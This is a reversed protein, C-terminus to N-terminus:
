FEKLLADIEEVLKTQSLSKNPKSTTSKSNDGHQLPASSSSSTLIRDRVLRLSPGTKRVQRRLLAVDLGNKQKQRVDQIISLALSDAMKETSASRTKQQMGLSTSDSTSTSTASSSAAVLERLREVKGAWAMTASTSATSSSKTPPLSFSQERTENEVDEHDVVKPEAYYNFAQEGPKRVTAFPLATSGIGSSSGGLRGPGSKAMTLTRGATPAGVKNSATGVPAKSQLEGPAKNKLERQVLSTEVCRNIDAITTSGPTPVSTPREQTQDGAKTKSTISAGGTTSGTNTNGFGAATLVSGHLGPTLLNDKSSAAHFHMPSYQLRRQEVTKGRPMDAFMKEHADALINKTSSSQQVISSTSNRTTSTTTTSSASSLTNAKNPAVVPPTATKKLQPPKNQTASTSSSPAGRVNGLGLNLEPKTASSTGSNRARTTEVKSKVAAIYSSKTPGTSTSSITTIANGATTALVAGGTTSSNSGIIGSGGGGGVSTTGVVTLQSGSCTQAGGGAGGSTTNASTSMQVDRYAVYTTDLGLLRGDQPDPLSNVTLLKLKGCSKELGQNVANNLGRWQMAKNRTTEYKTVLQAVDGMLGSVLIKTTATSFSLDPASNVEILWCKGFADVMFDFGYIEFSNERKPARRQVSHLSIWMYQRIQRTIDEFKIPHNGLAAAVGDHSHFEELYREFQASSWMTSDIQESKKTSPKSPSATSTTNSMSVVRKPTPSVPPTRLGRSTQESGGMQQQQQEGGSSAQEDFDPCLKTVANNTLHIYPDCTSCDYERAGFRLYFDEYYWARLNRPSEWATVVVWQRIDFKRKGILLPKEIYKQCIVNHVSQSERANTTPSRFDPLNNSNSSASTSNRRTPSPSSLTCTTSTEAAGDEENKVSSSSSTAVGATNKTTNAASANDGAASNSYNNLVDEIACDAVNAAKNADNFGYLHQLIAAPSAMVDASPPKRYALTTTSSSSFSTGRSLGGPGGCMSAAQLAASVAAAGSKAPWVEIWSSFDLAPQQKGQQLVTNSTLYNNTSSTTPNKFDLALPGKRSFIYPVSSASSDRSSSTNGNSAYYIANYAAQDMIYNSSQNNNTSSNAGGGGSGFQSGGSGLSNRGTTIEGSGGRDRLSAVSSGRLTGGAMHLLSSGRAAGAIGMRVIEDLTNVVQIGRGRSANTPKVIWLNHGGGVGDGNQWRSSAFFQFLLDSSTTTNHSTSSSQNNYSNYNIQQHEGGFATMFSANVSNMSSVSPASSRPGTADSEPVHFFACFRPLKGSYRQALSRVLM